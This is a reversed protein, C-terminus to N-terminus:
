INIRKKPVDAEAGKAAPIAARARSAFGDRVQRSICYRTMKDEFDPGKSFSFPQITLPTLRFPKSM